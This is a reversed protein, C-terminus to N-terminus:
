AACQKAVIQSEERLRALWARYSRREVPSLRQMFRRYHNRYGACTETQRAILHEPVRINDYDFQQDGAEGRKYNLNLYWNWMVAEDSNEDDIWAQHQQALWIWVGYDPARAYAPLTLLAILLYKM